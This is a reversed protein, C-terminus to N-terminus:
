LPSGLALAYLNDQVPPSSPNFFCSNLINMRGRRRNGGGSSVTRRRLIRVAATLAIKRLVVMNEPGDDKRLRFGDEGLSVDLVYQLSNEIGWRSRVAKTFQRADAPLSSIFRRREVTVEEKEERSSEAAGISRITKWDPHRGALRGADGSVAYDRDEIRGHREDHTSVSQFRIHRNKGAPVSFDLDKFYEQVDEYLTEASPLDPNKKLSFLYDAKKEVVKNATKYQCGMADITVICGELALKELLAPIATIENSKEETKVQGFVLRNEEAWASVM